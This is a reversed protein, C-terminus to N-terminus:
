GTEVVICPIRDPLMVLVRERAQLRTYVSGLESKRRVVEAERAASVFQKM